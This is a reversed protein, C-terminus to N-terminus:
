YEHLIQVRASVYAHTIKCAQCKIGPAHIDLINLTMIIIIEAM